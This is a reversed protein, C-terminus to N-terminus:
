GHLNHIPFRAGREILVSEIEKVEFNTKVHNIVLEPDFDKCSFVDMFFCDKNVYTHISIHSTVIIIIGTVGAIDAQRVRAMQPPGIKQMGILAPLKDLFDFIFDLDNLKEPNAGYCDLILHPGYNKTEPKKNM